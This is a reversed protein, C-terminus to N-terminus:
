IGVSGSAGIHRRVVVRGRLLGGVVRRARRRGRAAADVKFHVGHRVVVRAVEARLEPAERVDVHEHGDVAGVEDVRGPHVRPAQEQLDQGVRVLLLPVM